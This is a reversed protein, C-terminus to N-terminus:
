SCRIVRIVRISVFQCSNVRIVHIVRIIISKVFKRQRLLEFLKFDIRTLEHLEYLENNISFMNTFKILYCNRLKKETGASEKNSPFENQFINVNVGRLSRNKSHPGQPIAYSGTKLPTTEANKM